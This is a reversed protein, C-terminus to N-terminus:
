CPLPRHGLMCHGYDGAGLPAPQVAVPQLKTVVQSTVHRTQHGIAFSVAILAIVAVAILAIRVSSVIRRAPIGVASVTTTTM